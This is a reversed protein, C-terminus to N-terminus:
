TLVTLLAALAAFFPAPVLFPHDFVDCWPYVIVARIDERMNTDYTGSSLPAGSLIKRHIIQGTNGPDIIPYIRGAPRYLIAREEKAGSVAFYIAPDM